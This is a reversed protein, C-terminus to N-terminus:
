NLKKIEISMVTRGESRVREAHQAIRDDITKLLTRAVGIATRTHDLIIRGNGVVQEDETLQFGDCHIVYHVQITIECKDVTYPMILLECMSALHGMGHLSEVVEGIDIKM